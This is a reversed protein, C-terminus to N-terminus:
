DFVKIVEIGCKELFKIGDTMRYEQKYYVTKIGAGYIIKSCQLCPSHTCFLVSDIGSETSKALRSISNAESHIVEDYTKIGEWQITNEDYQISHFRDKENDSLEQYTEDELIISYECDNSQWGSPLGNYGCSIIRNEKVIVTGVKLRKAYSLQSTREAVDMFYKIFKPTM